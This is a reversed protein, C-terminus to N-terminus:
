PDPIPSPRSTRRRHETRFLRARVRRWGPLLTTASLLIGGLSLAITVVDWLPRRYYLFPFDLSHLGHYLWREVRSLREEKRVVAGRGPDFYLWTGVPDHYRVRLVPLALGGDRSYYYNDYARMWVRDEISTEPMAARAADDMAADTFREFTGREPHDISAIRSGAIAYTKGLFPLV